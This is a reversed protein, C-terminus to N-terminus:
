KRNFGKEYDGHEYTRSDFPNSNNRGFERDEAGQNIRRERENNERQQKEWGHESM